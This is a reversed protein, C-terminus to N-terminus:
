SSAAGEAVAQLVTGVVHAAAEYVGAFAPTDGNDFYGSGTLSAQTVRDIYAATHFREIETRTAMAPQAM